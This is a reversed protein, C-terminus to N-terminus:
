SALKEGTRELADEARRARRELGEAANLIRRREAESARLANNKAELAAAAESLALSAEKLRLENAALKRRSVGERRASEAAAAESAATEAELERRMEAVVADADRMSADTSAYGPKRNGRPDRAAADSARRRADELQLELTRLDSEAKQRTRWLEGELRANATEAASARANARSLNKVAVTEAEAVRASVEALARERQTEVLHVKNLLETETAAAARLQRLADALAAATASAASREETFRVRLLNVDAVASAAAYAHAKADATALTLKLHVDDDASAAFAADSMARTTEAAVAAAATAELAERRANDEERGAREAHLAKELASKREAWVEEAEDKAAARAWSVALTSEEEAAALSSRLTDLEANDGGAAIRTTLEANSAQLESVRAELVECTEEREVFALRLAELALCAASNQTANAAAVSAAAVSAAPDTEIEELRTKTLSLERRTDDLANKTAATALRETTNRTLLKKTLAELTALRQFAAANSKRPADDNEQAMVDDLTMVDALTGDTIRGGRELVSLLPSAQSTTASAIDASQNSPALCLVNASTEALPCRASRAEAAGRKGFPSEAKPTPVHQTTSNAAGRAASSSVAPESRAGVGVGACVRFSVQEDLSPM